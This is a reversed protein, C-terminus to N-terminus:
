SRSKLDFRLNEEGLLHECVRRPQRSTIDLLYISEPLRALAALLNGVGPSRGYIQLEKLGQLKERWREDSQKALSTRALRIRGPGDCCYALNDFITM